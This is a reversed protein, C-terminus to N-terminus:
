NRFHQVVPSSSVPPSLTWLLPSIRVVLSSSSFRMLPSPPFSTWQFVQFLNVISDPFKASHHFSSLRAAVSSKLTSIKSGFFESFTFWLDRNEADTATNDCDSTHLLEKIVRWRKGPDNACDELRTRFHDRRSDSILRNASHCARRYQRRDEEAGTALWRRKLRRWDRKATVTDFCNFM